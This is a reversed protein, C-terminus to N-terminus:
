GAQPAAAGSGFGGTGAANTPAEQLLSTMNISQDGTEVLAKETNELLTATVAKKHEDQIPSFSSHELLPGWKEVLAKNTSQSM